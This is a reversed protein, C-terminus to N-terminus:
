SQFTSLFSQSFVENSYPIYHEICRDYAKKYQEFSFDEFDDYFFGCGSEILEKTTKRQNGLIPIGMAMYDIDKNANQESYSKHPEQILSVGLLNFDKRLEFLKTKLEMAEFNGLYTCFTSEEVKKTIYHDKIIGCVFLQRKQRELFEFFDPAIKEERLQGLYLYAFPLNEKPQTVNGEM